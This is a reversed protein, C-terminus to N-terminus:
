SKLKAYLSSVDAIWQRAAVMGGAAECNSGCKWVVMKAPTDVHSNVLKEIRDGVVAIAESPSDFCSYGGDTTNGPGKYGWMNYCERGNKKPTHNGWDSEKKAIAVLFGAVRPDRQSIYPVMESIPYGKVLNAMKGDNDTVQMKEAKEMGGCLSNPNQCEQNLMGAGVRSLPDISTVDIDVGVNANEDDALVKVGGFIFFMGSILILITGGLIIKRKGIGKTYSPLPDDSTKSSM